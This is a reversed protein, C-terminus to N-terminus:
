GPGPAIIVAGIEVHGNPLDNRYFDYPSAPMAVVTQFLPSMVNHYLWDYFWQTGYLAQMMSYNRNKFKQAVDAQRMMIKKTHVPAQGLATISNATIDLEIIFGSNDAMMSVTYEWTVEWEAVSNLGVSITIPGLDTGYVHIGDTTQAFGTVVSAPVALRVASVPYDLMTAVQQATDFQVRGDYVQARLTGSSLCAVAIVFVLSLKKM